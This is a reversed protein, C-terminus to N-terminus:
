KDMAENIMDDWSTGVYGNDEDDDDYDEAVYQKIGATSAFLEEKKSPKHYLSTLYNDNRKLQINKKNTDNFCISSLEMLTDSLTILRKLMVKVMHYKQYEAVRTPPEHYTRQKDREDTPINKNTPTNLMLTYFAERREQEDPITCYRCCVFQNKDFIDNDIIEGRIVKVVYSFKYHYSDPHLTEIDDHYIWALEIFDEEFPSLDLGTEEEIFDITKKMERLCFDEKIMRFISTKLSHKNEQIQNYKDRQEKYMIQEAQLQQAMKEKYDKKAENFDLINKENMYKVIKNIFEPTTEDEVHLNVQGLNRKHRNSNKHAEMCRKAIAQVEYPVSKLGCCECTFGWLHEGVKIFSVSEM